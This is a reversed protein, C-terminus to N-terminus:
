NCLLTSQCSNNTGHATSPHANFDGIAERGLIIDHRSTAPLVLFEVEEIRSHLGDSLTVPFSIVGLPHMIEGGFGSVPAHIPKLREKDEEDLQDFCQAYMIDSTSGTDFFIYQSRYHGFLATIILPNKSNPGGKIRPFIVPENKWEEDDSNKRKKETNYGGQIMHINLDKIQKKSPGQIDRVPAKGNDPKGGKVLHGLKGSKVAAEIENRLSRCENTNHGIDDHYSCHKKADLFSRRTLPQPKRFSINETTLIEAPTKSLPTWSSPGRSTPGAKNKNGILTRADFPKSIEVSPQLSSWIPGKAHRNPRPNQFEVKFKQKLNGNRLTKETSAYVKAATMLDDWEKPMGDRGTLTHVLDDCKVNKRFAGRLM